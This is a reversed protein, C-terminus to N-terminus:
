GEMLDGMDAAEVTFSGVLKMKNGYVRVIASWTYGRASDDETIITEVEFAFRDDFRSRRLDENIIRDSLEIFELETLDDRGVLLRWSRLCAKQAEVCVDVMGMSILVSDSHAYASHFAPFFLSRRDFDQVWMSGSSWAKDFASFVRYTHNVEKLTNIQNNPAIQPNQGRNWVGNGAGMYISRKQLYEILVPVMGRHTSNIFKGQQGVIFFRFAETGFLASDVNARGYDSLATINAEEEVLSLFGNPRWEEIEGDRGTGLFIDGQGIGQGENPNGTGMIEGYRPDSPDLTINTVNYAEWPTLHVKIDKRKNLLDLFKFKTALQFGTDYYDSVPYRAWNLAHTPQTIDGYQDLLDFVANDYTMPNVDGDSGGQAYMAKMSSPKLSDEDLVFAHYPIGDMDRGTFPNFLYLNDEGYEGAEPVANEKEFVDRLANEYNSQYFWMEQFPGEEEPMGPTSMERYRQIFTENIDYLVGRDTKAGPKLALEIEQDGGLTSLIRETSTKGQEVIQIRFVYAGIEEMLGADGANPGSTIPSGWKIGIRNGWEGFSSVKFDLIPIVRSENDVTSLDGGEYTNGQGFDDGIVNGDNDTVDNVPTVLWQARYGELTVGEMIQPDGNSRRIYEGNDDREYVEVDDEVLELSLRLTSTKANPPTVREVFIQQSRMATLAGLTQHNYYKSNVDFTADGFIRKLDGGDGLKAGPSGREALLYFHPLHTPIQEPVVPLQKRSVDRYGRLIPRPTAKSLNEM